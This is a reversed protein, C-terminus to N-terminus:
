WHSWLRGHGRFGFIPGDVGRRYHSAALDPDHPNAAKEETKETSPDKAQGDEKAVRENERAKRREERSLVRDEM